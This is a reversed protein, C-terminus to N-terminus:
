LCPGRPAWKHNRQWYDKAITQTLALDDHDIFDASHRPDYGLKRAVSSRHIRSCFDKLKSAGASLLHPM